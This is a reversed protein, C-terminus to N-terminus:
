EPVAPKSARYAIWLANPAAVGRLEYEDLLEAIQEHTMGAYNELGAAGQQANKWAVLSAPLPMETNPINGGQIRLNEITSRVRQYEPETWASPLNDMLERYDDFAQDRKNLKPAAPAPSHQAKADMHKDFLRMLYNAMPMREKTAETLLRAHDTESIRLTLTKM